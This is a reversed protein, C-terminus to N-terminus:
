INVQVHCVTSPLFYEKYKVPRTRPKQRLKDKWYVINSNWSKKKFHVWDIRECELIENGRRHEYMFRNSRKTQKQGDGGSNRGAKRM